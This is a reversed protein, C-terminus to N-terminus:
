NGVFVAIELAMVQLSWKHENGEGSTAVVTSQIGLTLITHWRPSKSYAFPSPVDLPVFLSLFPAAWTMKLDLLFLCVYLWKQNDTHKRPKIQLCAQLNRCKTNLLKCLVCRGKTGCVGADRHLLKQDHGARAPSNIVRLIATQFIILRLHKQKWILTSFLQKALVNIM